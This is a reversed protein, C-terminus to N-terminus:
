GAALARGRLTPFAGAEDAPVTESALDFWFPEGPRMCHIQLWRLVAREDTEPDFVAETPTGDLFHLRVHDAHHLAFFRRCRVGGGPRTLAAELGSVPYLTLKVIAIDGEHRRGVLLRSGMQCFRSLGVRVPQGDPWFIDYGSYSINGNTDDRSQQRRFLITLETPHFGDM